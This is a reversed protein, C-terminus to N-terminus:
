GSCSHTKQGFYDPLANSHARYFCQKVNSSVMLLVDAMRSMSSRVLKAPFLMNSSSSNRNPSAGPVCFRSNNPMLTNLTRSIMRVGGIVAVRRLSQTMANYETAQKKPDDSSRDESM